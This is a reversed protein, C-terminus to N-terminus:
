MVNVSDWGTTGEVCYKKGLRQIHEVVIVFISLVYYPPLTHTHLHLTSTRNVLTEEAEKIALQKIFSRKLEGEGWEDWKEDEVTTRLSSNAM